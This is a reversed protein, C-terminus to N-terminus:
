RYQGYEQHQQSKVTTMATEATPRVDDVSMGEEWTAGGIAINFGAEVLDLNGDLFTQTDEQMRKTVRDLVEAPDRPSKKKGKGRPERNLVVLFEDGGLRAAIDNPRLGGTIVDATGIIAEDGRDHGIKDNVAKQNTGDIYLIAQPSKSNALLNELGRRNLLGTLKDHTAEHELKRNKYYLYLGVGGLAVNGALSLKPVNQKEFQLMFVNYCLYM